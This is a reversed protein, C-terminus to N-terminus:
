NCCLRPHGACPRAHRVGSYGCSGDVFGSVAQTESEFKLCGLQLVDNRPSAFCRVRFRSIGRHTIACRLDPALAGDRFSPRISQKTAESAVVDNLYVDANERRSAGSDHMSREGLLPRPSHRTGTAGAAARPTYFARANTVVTAGPDGPMGARLPKLPKRRARGPSRAKKDGDDASNSGGVQRRRRPTLVVRSRRGRMRQEDAADERGGCGAGRGHRDRYAGRHSPVALSISKIQTFPSPFYKKLFSQVPPISNIECSFKEEITM